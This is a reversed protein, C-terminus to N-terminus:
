VRRPQRVVLVTRGVADGAMAVVLRGAAGVVRRAVVAVVLVEGTRWARQAEDAVLLDVDAREVRLELWERADVVGPAGLRRLERVGDVEVGAAHLLADAEVDAAGVAVLSVARE